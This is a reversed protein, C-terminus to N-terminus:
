MVRLYRPTDFKDTQISLAYRLMKTIVDNSYKHSIEHLQIIALVVQLSQIRSILRKENTRIDSGRTIPQVKILDGGVQRRLINITSILSRVLSKLQDINLLSLEEYSQLNQIKLGAEIKSNLIRKIAKFSVKGHRSSSGEVEGDINQGKSTDSSDFNINRDKIDVDKDNKHKWISTTSIKSAIGRMDSGVMFSKIFFDPLDKDLESNTIIKFNGSIKKLSIPILMKSDFYGNLVKNLEDMPKKVQGDDMVEDVTNVSYIDSLIKDRDIVSIMYVDAPCYKSINIDSFGGNKSIERYKNSIAVYPSDTGSYGVHYISYLKNTDLKGTTTSWLKNPVKCFTEIWEPDQLFDDILDEDVKFGRMDDEKMVSDPLHILNSEYSIFKKFKNLFSKLNNYGLYRHPYAQKIALFICQASEFQKVLRGAGSSGFEKTKKFQNLRFEDGDNDKFVPTYRGSKTFYDKAKDPDYIDDTTIDDVAESPEVWEGDEDKMKDIVVEKNNNTTLTPNKSKLKTILIDGRKEDGRIKGLEGLNLEVEELFHKYKSIKM